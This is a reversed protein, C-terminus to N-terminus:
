PTPPAPDQPVPDKLRESRDHIFQGIGRRTLVGLLRGEELVPLGDLGARYIRELAQRLPDTPALFSMKPPKAMVDEVRTKAWDSRRIRRVQAVGLLGVISAGETVPVATMPTEGDLLQAAFTDVTLSPHVTTQVEEMADRVVHGGVLDDLRIRDRVSNSSLVFFWGTLAIFAGTMDGQVVLFTIGIGIVVLGTLRGSRWAARWGSRESGSRRWAIDRVIRGGDLPYAPVLNLFVLVSLVGAAANFAGGVAVVAALAGFFLGGIALSVLPGSAAIAADDGPDPSSPDLPTAGGFFSVGISRVDIGRRRAVIAHALDHSVSSIFFGLAVIGGLAWAVADELAPDVANLQGVAIFAVLALVVAWGLQVRIEIGFIRAIPIGM